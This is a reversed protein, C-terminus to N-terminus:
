NLYLKGSAGDTNSSAEATDQPPDIPAAQFCSHGVHPPGQGKRAVGEAEAVLVKSCVGLVDIM